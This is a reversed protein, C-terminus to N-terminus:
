YHLLPVFCPLFAILTLWLWMSGFYVLSSCKRLHASGLLSYYVQPCIITQACNQNKQVSIQHSKFETHPHLTFLCFFRNQLVEFILIHNLVLGDLCLTSDGNHCPGGDITPPGQVNQKSPSFLRKGKACTHLNGTYRPAIYQHLINVSNTHISSWNLFSELVYELDWISGTGNVIGELWKRLVLRTTSRSVSVSAFSKMRCWYERRELSYSSIWTQSYQKRLIDRIKILLLYLVM